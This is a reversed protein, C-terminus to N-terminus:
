KKHRENNGRLVDDNEQYFDEWIAVPCPSIEHAKNEVPDTNLVLARVFMDALIDPDIM